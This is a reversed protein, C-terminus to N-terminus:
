LAVAEPSSSACCGRARKKCGGSPLLQLNFRSLQLSDLQLNSPLADINGSVDDNGTLNISRIHQGHVSLHHLVGEVQQQIPLVATIIRLAAVAAQHLRSHARAVSFLSCQHDAAVCQLVALLCPDPLDLLSLVAASEESAM